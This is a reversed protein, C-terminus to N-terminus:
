KTAIYITCIGFTQPRSLAKHFGVRRLIDTFQKGDPFQAVSEPLYSYARYDKSFTKGILPTVRNFYFHYLQKIPFSKPKSFELVVAKGGPKLVRHIHALGKELNEFNRVGFAVTVADFTGDSFPLRESDALAVEFQDELGKKAIKERAIDLMGSSIDVGIVKRPQLIKIAELAFDGTGTAVDLLRQPKSAKLAKIAKKRWIIDIGLSMFHNLFDYTGSINNFMNAVQKKKDAGTDKYPKVTQSTTM